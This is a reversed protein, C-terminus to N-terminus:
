IKTLIGYVLSIIFCCVWYFKVECLRWKNYFCLIVINGLEYIINTIGTQGVFKWLTNLHVWINISEFVIFCVLCTQSLISDHLKRNNYRSMEILIDYCKLPMIILEYIIIWPDIQFFVFIYVYIINYM